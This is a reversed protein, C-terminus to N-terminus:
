DVIELIAAPNSKVPPLLIPVGGALCVANVYAAPSYFNGNQKQSYSTIGIIPPTSSNANMALEVRAPTVEINKLLNM